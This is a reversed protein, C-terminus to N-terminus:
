ADEIGDSTFYGAPAPPAPVERAIMRELEAYLQMRAHRHGALFARRHAISVDDAWGDPVAQELHVMAMVERLAVERIHRIAEAIVADPASM